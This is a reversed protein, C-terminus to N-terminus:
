HWHNSLIDSVKGRSYVFALAPVTFSRRNAYATKLIVLLLYLIITLRTKLEDGVITEAVVIVIQMKAKYRFCLINDRVKLTKNKHILFFFLSACFFMFVASHILKPKAIVM